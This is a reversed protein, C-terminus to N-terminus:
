RYKDWMSLIIEQINSHQPKWNLKKFAKDSKAMLIPPDGLRREAIDYSIKQRISLETARIVDLM